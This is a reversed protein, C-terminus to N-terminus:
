YAAMENSHDSEPQGQGFESADRTLANQHVKQITRDQRNLPRILAIWPRLQRRLHSNDHSIAGPNDACVLFQRHSGNLEPKGSV